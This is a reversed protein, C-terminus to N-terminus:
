MYTAAQSVQTPAKHLIQSRNFSLVAFRLINGLIYDISDIVGDNHGVLSSRGESTHDLPMADRSQVSDGNKREKDELEATQRFSATSLESPVKKSDTTNDDLLNSPAVNM